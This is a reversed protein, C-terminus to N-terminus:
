MAFLGADDEEDGDGEVEDVDVDMGGFVFDSELGWIVDKAGDEAGQTLGEFFCGPNFVLVTVDIIRLGDIYLHGCDCVWESVGGGVM